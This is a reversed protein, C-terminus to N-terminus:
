ILNHPSRCIGNLVLNLQMSTNEYDFLTIEIEVIMKLLKKIIIALTGTCSLDKFCYLIRWYETLVVLYVLNNFISMIVRFDILLEYTYM